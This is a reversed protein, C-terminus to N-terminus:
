ALLPWSMTIGIFSVLAVFVWFSTNLSREMQRLEAQAWHHTYRSPTQKSSTTTQTTQM